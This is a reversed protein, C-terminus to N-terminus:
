IYLQTLWKNHCLFLLTLHKTVYSSIAAKEANLLLEELLETKSDENQNGCFKEKRGETTRWIQIDKWDRSNNFTIRWNNSIRLSYEDECMMVDPHDLPQM